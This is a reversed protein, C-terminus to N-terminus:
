RKETETQKYTHPDAAGQPDEEVPLSRRFEIHKPVRSGTLGTAPHRMWSLVQEASGDETVVIFARMADGTETGRVGTVAAREVNPHRNLTEEVGAPDVSPGVVSRDQIVTTM